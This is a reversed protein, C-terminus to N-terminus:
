LNVKVLPVYMEEDSLGGHNGWHFDKKEGPLPDRFIYNEKALLIYDGIRQAFQPHEKGLGFYGQAALDSARHLTCYDRFRHRVYKEFQQAKRPHVYCFAARPEGCLPVTLCEHLLPHRSVEIARETTTTVQGHDATLLLLTGTGKLQSAFHALALDIQRLHKRTKFHEKGYHHSFNDFEPWYMYVYQRKRSPAAIIRRAQRFFGRLNNYGWMTAKGSLFYNYPSAHLHKKLVIHTKADLSDYINQSFSLQKKGIFIPDGNKTVFPLIAVVSGIEALNMFWGTIGHEKPSLGTMFTTVAAATTSPFVTSLRQVCHRRLFSDKDLKMMSDYGLGDIVCLIVHRAKRIEATLSDSLQPYSSRSGLGHQLSSMVNVINGQRYDPIVM